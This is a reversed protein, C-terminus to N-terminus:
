KVEFFYKGSAVEMLWNRNNKDLIKIFSTNGLKKGSEYKEKGSKVPLYLLATTNVPVEVEWAFHDKKREWNSTITGYLSEYQCKVWELSDTAEPKLIFKRFGPNELDSRIGGPVEYFWEGISGFM